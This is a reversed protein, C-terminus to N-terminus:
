EGKSQSQGPATQKLNRLRALCAGLFDLRVQARVDPASIAALSEKVSYEDLELLTAPLNRSISELWAVRDEKSGTKDNAQAASNLAVVAEKLVATADAPQHKVILRLLGFYWGSKEADAITSRRLGARAESLFELTPDTEKNRNEPLQAVFTLKSFPQLDAPVANLVVRMAYVDGNKFHRLSTTQQGYVQVPILAIILLCTTLLRM